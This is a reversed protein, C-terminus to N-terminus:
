AAPPDAALLEHYLALTQAVVRAESFEELARARSRAGQRARLLPDACLRELARALEGVHGPPVLFGNEGPRVIERGGATDTAVIPLGAAAAEILFPPLGERWAPLCAVHARRLVAALDSREGWWEIVGEAQWAELQGPPIADPHCPDCAGILVFRAESGQARLRRAAAVFEGVGQDLRLRAAALVVLAPAVPRPGPRFRSPDAGAAKIVVRRRRPALRALFAQDAPNQVVIGARRGGLALRLGLALARRRWGPALAGAAIGNLAFVAGGRGGLRLLLGGYLVAKLTAFHVLEPALRGLLRRLEALAGLERRWGGLGHGLALEHGSMGEALLRASARAGPVAVHVEFGARRAARAVALRQGFFSGLDPVVFLLRPGPGGAPAVPDAPAPPLRAREALAESM